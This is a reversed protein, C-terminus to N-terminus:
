SGEGTGGDGALPALPGQGDSSISTEDMDDYKTIGLLQGLGRLVRRLSSLALASVVAGLTAPRSEGRLLAALLLLLVAPVLLREKLLLLRPEMSLALSSADTVEYGTSSSDPLSPPGDEGVEEKQKDNAASDVEPGSEEATQHPLNDDSIKIQSYKLNSFFLIQASHFLWKLDGRRAQGIDYQNGDSEEQQQQQQPQPQPQQQQQQQPHPQPYPHPHLRDIETIQLAATTSSGNGIGIAAKAAWEKARRRQEQVDVKTGEHALAPTALSSSFPPRGVFPEAPADRPGIAHSNSSSKARNSSLSSSVAISATSSSSSRGLQSNSVRHVASGSVASIKSTTENAAAVDFSENSFQKVQVSKLTKISLFLRITFM